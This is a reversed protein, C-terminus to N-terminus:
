KIGKWEVTDDFIYCTLNMKKISFAVNQENILYIYNEGVKRQNGPVDKALCVKFPGYLNDRYEYFISQGERTKDWDIKKFKYRRSLEFYKYEM